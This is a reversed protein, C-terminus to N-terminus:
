GMMQIFADGFNWAVIGFAACCCCLFVAVAIGIVLWNPGKKAPTAPTEYSENM